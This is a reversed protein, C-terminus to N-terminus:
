VKQHEGEDVLEIRMMQLHGTWFSKLLMEADNWSIKKTTKVYFLTYSKYDDGKSYQFSIITWNNLQEVAM